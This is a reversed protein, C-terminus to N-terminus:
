NPIRVGDDVINDLLVGISLVGRVEGIAQVESLILTLAILKSITDDVSDYGIITRDVRGLMISCSGVELLMEAVVPMVKM